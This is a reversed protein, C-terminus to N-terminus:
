LPWLKNKLWYIKQIIKWARTSNIHDLSSSITQVKELSESLQGQLRYIEADKKALGVTSDALKEELIAIQQENQEQRVKMHKIIDDREHIMSWCDAINGNKEVIEGQLEVVRNVKQQYRGETDFIISSIGASDPLEQRGCIAILYKGPISSSTRRLVRCCDAKSDTLTYALEQFQELLTVNHFFQRLFDNFEQRYYEKLHFENKYDALESYIHKDPTSIVLFGDPALVRIVEDLFKKHLNDPIHEITEFSVVVDFSATPFPLAVLSGQCYELNKAKYNNKAFAVTEYDIDTGCVWAAREALLATGYGAGSAVDLVRKGAVIDQVSLYRQLHELEIEAGLGCDPIFREGTFEM